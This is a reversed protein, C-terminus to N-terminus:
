EITFMLRRTGAYAGKGTITVSATDKGANVNNSYTLTYGASSIVNGNADQIVLKPKQAKANYTYVADEDAFRISLANIDRRSMINKKFASDKNKVRYNGCLTIEIDYKEGLALEDMGVRTSTGAKYIVVSDKRYQTEDLETKGSAVRLRSGTEDYAIQVSISSEAIEKPQITFPQTIKGAYNGIGSVTICPADQASLDAAQINKEYSVTYDKGKKLTKGGWKVTVAPTLAKGSYVAKAVTVTCDQEISRPVISFTKTM